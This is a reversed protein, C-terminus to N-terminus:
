TQSRTPTLIDRLAHLAESTMRKVKGESCGLAEATDAVSADLYFRMVVCTRRRPTLQSLARTLQDRDDVTGSWDAVTGDRIDDQPSERRWPRRSKDILITVVARRAYAERGSGMRAWRKHLRLLATQAADEAKHWDGCLLYGTRTLRAFSSRVFADFEEDTRSSGM